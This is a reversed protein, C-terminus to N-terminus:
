AARARRLQRVTAEVQAVTIDRGTQAEDGIGRQLELAELRREVADAWEDMHGISRAHREMRRSHGDIRRSVRVFQVMGALWLGAFATWAPIRLDLVTQYIESITM